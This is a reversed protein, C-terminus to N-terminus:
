RTKEIRESAANGRASNLIVGNSLTPAFDVRFKNESLKVERQRM